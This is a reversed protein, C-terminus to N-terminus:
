VHGSDLIRVPDIHRRLLKGHIKQQHSWLPNQHSPGTSIVMSTLYAYATMPITPCCISSHQRSARRAIVCLSDDPFKSLLNLFAAEIRELFCHPRYLYVVRTGDQTKEGWEAWQMCKRTNIGVIHIGMRGHRESHISRRAYTAITHIVQRTYTGANWRIYINGCYIYIGM